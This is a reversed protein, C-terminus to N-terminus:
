LPWTYALYNNNKGLCMFLEDKAILVWKWGSCRQHTDFQPLWPKSTTPASTSQQTKKGDTGLPIVHRSSHLAAQSRESSKQTGWIAKSLSLHFLFFNVFSNLSHSSVTWCPLLLNDPIDYDGEHHLHLVNISGSKNTTGLIYHCFSICLGLQRLFIYIKAYPNCILREQKRYCVYNKICIVSPSSFASDSDYWSDVDLSNTQLLQSKNCWVCGVCLWLYLDHLTSMSFFFLPFSSRLPLASTIANLLLTPSKIM